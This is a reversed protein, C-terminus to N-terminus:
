VDNHGRMTMEVAMLGSGGAMNVPKMLGSYGYVTSDYLDPRWKIFFPLTRAHIMFPKLTGRVWSPSLHQWSFSSETGKTAINRGLFQGTESLSDQYDIDPSLDIPSHGGYIPQEMRLYNGAQIVGIKAGWEPTTATLAIEAVSLDDLLIMIAENDTPNITDIETLSGGITTAYEILVEVGGDHTGLNHAGLAIYNISTLAELQFKITTASNPLEYRQYTNPTLALPADSTTILLNEYGIVACSDTKDPTISIM